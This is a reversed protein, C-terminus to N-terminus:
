YGHWRLNSPSLPESSIIPPREPYPLIPEKHLFTSEKATGIPPPFKMFALWITKGSANSRHGFLPERGIAKLVTKLKLQTEAWKFIVVGYDDCVRMCEDMGAKLEEAWDRDLKGYRKYLNATKGAWVLHPPDFVVLKFSKDPFPMKTFDGIVNPHVIVTQGDSLVCEEDRIDMFTVNPNDKDFWFMWSGCCADLIPTPKM